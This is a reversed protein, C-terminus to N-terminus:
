QQGGFDQAIRAYVRISNPSAFVLGPTVAAAGPRKQEIAAGRVAEMMESKTAGNSKGETALMTKIRGELAANNVKKYEEFASNIAEVLAKPDTPNARPTACIARPM